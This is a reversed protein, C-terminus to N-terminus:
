GPILNMVRIQEEIYKMREATDINKETFLRESNTYAKKETLIERFNFSSVYPNRLNLSKYNVIFNLLKSADKSGSFANYARNRFSHIERLLNTDSKLAEINRNRNFVDLAVATLMDRDAKIKQLEEYNRVFESLGEQFKPVCKRKIEDLILQEKNGGNCIEDVTKGSLRFKAITLFGRLSDKDELGILLYFMTKDNYDFGNEVIITPSFGFSHLKQLTPIDSVDSNDTEPAEELFISNEEFLFYSKNLRQNTFCITGTM